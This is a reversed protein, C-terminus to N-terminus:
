PYPMPPITPDDHQQWSDGPPRDLWEVETDGHGHVRMFAELGHSWVEVIPYDSHRRMTLTGDTWVVAEAIVEGGRKLFFRRPRDQASGPTM